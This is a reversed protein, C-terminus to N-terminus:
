EDNENVERYLDTRSQGCWIRKSEDTEITSIAKENTM